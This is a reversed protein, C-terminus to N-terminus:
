NVKAKMLRAHERKASQLKSMEKQMTNLKKEYRIRIEKAKEEAKSDM